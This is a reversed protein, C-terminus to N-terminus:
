QNKVSPVRFVEPYNDELYDGYDRQLGQLSSEFFELVFTEQIEEFRDRDLSGTLGVVSTMPSYMYIMTFDVHTTGQIQFLEAQNNNNLVECLNVDNKHGKWEESRLFLYSATTEKKVINNSLPEVWPDLGMIGRVRPDMAAVKVGAGGGTSHGLLGIKNLDLLSRLAEDMQNGDSDTIVDLVFSIDEAYTNIFVEAYKLFDPDDRGPLAEGDISVEEGNEFVVVPAGYTHDIGLVIFGHSALLEGLDSHLTRFGSWGHSLVVVPYGKDQSLVPAKLYSNSLVEESQDLMFPPFYFTRALKRSVVRGEPIWPLQEFGEVTNAPYWAQVKIKRLNTGAEDGYTELREHDTWDYIQTGVDYPGSPFEMATVPFAMHFIISLFFALIYIFFTRNKMNLFWISHNFSNAFFSYRKMKAYVLLSALFAGYFPYYYWEIYGRM